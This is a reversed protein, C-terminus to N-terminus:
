EESEIGLVEVLEVYRGNERLTEAPHDALENLTATLRELAANCRGLAKRPTVNLREHEALDGEFAEFDYADDAQADLDKYTDWADAQERLLAEARQV